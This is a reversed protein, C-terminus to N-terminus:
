EGKLHFTYRLMLTHSASSVGYDTSYLYQAFFNPSFRWGAGFDSFRNGIGYSDHSQWLNLYSASVFLRRTLDAQVATHVSFFRSTPSNGGAFDTTLVVRRTLAYGLGFGLSGRHGRLSDQLSIGLWGATVGYSLRPTLMGRLRVGIEAAHGTTGTQGQQNTSIWAYRYFVGLTTTRTLERSYGATVRTQSIGSSPDTGRLSEMELGFSNAQVRRAALFAGSFFTSASDSSGVRSASAAGGFTFGAAPVFM